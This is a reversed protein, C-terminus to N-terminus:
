DQVYVANDWLTESHWLSLHLPTPLKAVNKCLIPQWPLTGQSISFLPGSRDDVGLLSENSTFIAFILEASRSIIQRRSIMLFSLFFFFLYFIYLGEPSNASRALFFSIVSPLIYLRNPWKASRAVLSNWVNVIRKAYLHGNRASM